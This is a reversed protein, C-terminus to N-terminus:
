LRPPQPQDLSRPRRDAGPTVRRRCAALAPSRRRMQEALMPHLDVRDFAARTLSGPEDWISNPVGTTGFHHVLAARRLTVVGEDSFGRVRTADV